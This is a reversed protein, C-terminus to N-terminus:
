STKGEEPYRGHQVFYWERYKRMNEPDAFYAKALEVIIRCSRDSVSINAKAEM